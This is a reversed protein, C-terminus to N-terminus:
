SKDVERNMMAQRSTYGGDTPNIERHTEPGKKKRM